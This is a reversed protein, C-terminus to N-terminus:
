GKPRDIQTNAMNGSKGRGLAAARGRIKEPMSHNDRAGGVRAAAAGLAADIRTLAGDIIGDVGNLAEGAARGARAAATKLESSHVNLWDQAKISWEEAERELEARAAGLATNLAEGLESLREGIGNLRAASARRRRTQAYAKFFAESCEGALTMHASDPANSPTDDSLIAEAGAYLPWITLMFAILLSLAIKM